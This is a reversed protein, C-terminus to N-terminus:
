LDLDQAPDLDSSGFIAVSLLVVHVCACARVHVRLYAYERTCVVYSLLLCRAQAGNQAVCSCGKHIARRKCREASDQNVYRSLRVACVTCSNPAREHLYCVQVMNQVSLQGVGMNGCPGGGADRLTSVDDVCVGAIIGDQVCARVNM